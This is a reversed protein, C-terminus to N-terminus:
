QPFLFQLQFRLQWDPGNDPKEVNYYASLQVNVPQKGISFIKGIGGGFPITWKNGSDAKWNATIIPGSALYWGDPLNYNIFYQWTFANIENDGPGGISWVNSFLSGVVWNGPMTLFVVSPGAGWKDAGLRDDTATPLLFAPGIGWIIKGSKEPSLFATFSTDGIGNTRGQGPTFGPQSLVPIITRTVLNWDKTISFPIVPQINLINQTEKEPGYNFNTNNQFPLSIMKAIPNQAAKALDKKSKAEAKQIYISETVFVFLLLFIALIVMRMSLKKM